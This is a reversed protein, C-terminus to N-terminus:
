TPAPANDGKNAINVKTILTPLVPIKIHNFYKEVRTCPQGFFVVQSM